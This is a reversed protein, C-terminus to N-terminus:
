SAVTRTLTYNRNQEVVRTPGLVRALERRWPLHSNFVCWFEGGPVLVRGADAFMALAPSSEKARDQHFPPNSVIADVSADPLTALGDAWSVEVRVGNLRATERTAAVASFSSDTAVVDRGARALVGSLVGNGCGLDVVRRGDVRGLHALLLRTGPDVKTGAFTGGHAAVWLDLDPHFRRKPWPSDAPQPVEGRLVRAKAVGLSASVQEYHRALVSNMSHNLHRIRAGALLRAGAGSALGAVEDLEGLSKPLRYLVLDAAPATLTEVRVGDPLGQHERWDDCWAKVGPRDALGSAVGPADVVLVRGPLEGAEALLLRDVVDM